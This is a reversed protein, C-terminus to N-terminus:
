VRFGLGWSFLVDRPLDVISRAAEPLALTFHCPLLGLVARLTWPSLYHPNLAWISYDSHYKPGSVRVNPDQVRQTNRKGVVHNSRDPQAARWLATRFIGGHELIGHAATSLKVVLHM